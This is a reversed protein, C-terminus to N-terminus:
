MHVQVKKKGSGRYEFKELDEVRIVRTDTDGRHEITLELLSGNELQQVDVIHEISQGAVIAYISRQPEAQHMRKFAAVWDSARTLPDTPPPPMHENYDVWPDWPAPIPYPSEIQQANPDPPPDNALLYPSGLIFLLLLIHM